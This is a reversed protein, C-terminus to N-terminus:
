KVGGLTITDFAPPADRHGYDSTGDLGHQRLRCASTPRPGRHSRRPDHSDARRKPDDRLWAAARDLLQQDARAADREPWERQTPM